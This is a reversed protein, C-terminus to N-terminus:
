AAEIVISLHGLAGRSCPYLVCCRSQTSQPEHHNRAHEIRAATRGQPGNDRNETAAYNSVHCTVDQDAPLTADLLIIVISILLM